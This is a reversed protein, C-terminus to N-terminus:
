SKCTKIYANIDDIQHCEEAVHELKEKLKRLFAARNWASEYLSKDYIRLTNFNDMCPLSLLDNVDSDTFLMRTPASEPKAPKEDEDLGDHSDVMM